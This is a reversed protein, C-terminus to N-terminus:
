KWAVPGTRSSKSIKSLKSWMKENSKLRTRGRLTPIVGNPWFNQTTFVLIQGVSCLQGPFLPTLLDKSSWKHAKFLSFNGIKRIEVNLYISYIPFFVRCYSSTDAKTGRFLARNGGTALFDVIYGFFLTLKPGFNVVKFHRLKPIQWKSLDWM